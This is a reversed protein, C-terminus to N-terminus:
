SLTIKLSETMSNICYIQISNKGQEGDEVLNIIDVLKSLCSQESKQLCRDFAPISSDNKTTGQIFIM